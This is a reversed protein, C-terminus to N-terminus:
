ARGAMSRGLQASSVPEWAPVRRMILRECRQEAEEIAREEFMLQEKVKAMHGDSKVSEAFYDPPRQWPVGAAELQTIAAEAAAKANNYFALERAVDDDIDAVETTTPLTIVQAAASRSSAALHPGNDTTHVRM